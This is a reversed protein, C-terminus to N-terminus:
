PWVLLVDDHKGAKGNWGAEQEEKSGEDHSRGNKGGDFFTFCHSQGCGPGSWNTDNDRSVGCGNGGCGTLRAVSKSERKHEAGM